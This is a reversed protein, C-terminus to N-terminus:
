RASVAPIFLREGAAIGLRAAEGAGLEIVYRGTGDRRAVQDDPTGPATAPVDAAVATVTGDANVFIMDLAAITNKMWFSRKLDGDPFAFLMGQGVPVFPVKMLGRERTPTDAAVALRLTARRTRVELPRCPLERPRHITQTDVDSRVSTFDALPLPITACWGVPTAAPAPVQATLVLAALALAARLRNPTM